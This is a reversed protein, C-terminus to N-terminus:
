RRLDGEFAQQYGTSYGQRYVIKWQDKSGYSSQYGPADSFHDSKTIDSMRRNKRIDTQGDMMGDQYGHQYAPDSASQDGYGGYQPRDPDSYRGPEAAGGNRGDWSEGRSREYGALYGQRYQQRWQGKDGYSSNYGPADEYNESKAPDKRKGHQVDSQGNRVGDEFGRRYGGDDAYQPQGNPRQGYRQDTGGYMARQYGSTYGQRYQEKWQRKDVYLSDYGPADEYNEGKTPDARKGSQADNQGRRMGDEFGRRYAPDNQLGGRDYQGYGKPGTTGYPNYPQQALVATSSCLVTLLIANHM